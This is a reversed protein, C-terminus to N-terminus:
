TGAGNATGTVDFFTYSLALTDLREPLAPDVLFTVPMSM